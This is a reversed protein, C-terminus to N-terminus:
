WPFRLRDPLVVAMITIRSINFDFEDIGSGIREFGRGYISFGRRM